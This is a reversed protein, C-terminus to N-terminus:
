YFILIITVYFISIRRLNVVFGIIKNRANINAVVNIYVINQAM